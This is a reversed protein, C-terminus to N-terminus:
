VNSYRNIFFNYANNFFIKDVMEKEYGMDILKQYIQPVTIIGKIDKPMLAGDFDSGIALVDQAGLKLFYDIHLIVSDISPNEDSLFSEYFNIGILGKRLIIEEIQEDSLNRVHSCVSKANSHSAVVPLNTNKLVDYFLKVSAHSVDIVMNEKDLLKVFEKGLDTLGLNESGGVGSGIVNDGNWTLTLMKISFEKLKEIRNFDRAVFDADEITPIILTKGKNRAYILDDKSKCIRIDHIKAQLILLNQMSLFTQYAKSKQVKPPIWTAFCQIYSSFNDAYKLDVHLDNNTFGRNKNFCECLTDCHLDFYNM